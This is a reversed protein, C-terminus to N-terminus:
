EFENLNLNLNKLIRLITQRSDCHHQNSRNLSHIDCFNFERHNLNSQDNQEIQNASQINENFNMRSNIGGNVTLTLKMNM